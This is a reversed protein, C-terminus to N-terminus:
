SRNSGPDPRVAAKWNWVPPRAPAAGESRGRRVTKTTTTTAGVVVVAAVVVDADFRESDIGHRVSRRTDRESSCHYTPPHM